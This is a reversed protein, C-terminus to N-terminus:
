QREQFRVERVDEWDILREQDDDDGQVRIGQNNRDVDDAGGLEFTRGDRLTILSEEANLPAVSALKSFEIHFEIGDQSGNLMEWSYAEDRDWILHGTYEEGDETIVTGYIRQGGDFSSYAAHTEAQHFRVSEFEDWSVKVQGLLPDSVSIGRNSSNVDNTGGLIMEDGNKLTVVASRSSYREISQINGFPIAQDHGHEEGDLIDNSYIEDVDWTVYGTFKAGSRTVMTGYMRFNRPSEGEPAARFHIVDLDSWALKVERGDRQEIVIARMSSGLDTASGSFEMQEGSKLTFLASHSDLAKISQIHGFRIGSQASARPVFLSRDLSLPAYARVAALASIRASPASVISIKAGSGSLVVFDVDDDFYLDTEHNFDQEVLAVEREVRTVEREIRDRVREVRVVEREVRTLDRGLRVIMARVRPARMVRVLADGEGAGRKNADLLDAWSGENRDWRIYGEYEDGRVTIVTGYLRNSGSDVPGAVVIPERAPQIQFASIEVLIPSVDPQDEVKIVQPEQGRLLIALTLIGGIIGAGWVLSLNRIDDRRTSETM